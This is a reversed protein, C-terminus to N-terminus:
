PVDRHRSRAGDVEDNGGASERPSPHERVDPGSHEIWFLGDRRAPRGQDAICLTPKATRKPVRGSNSKPYQFNEPSTWQYVCIRRLGPFQYYVSALGRDAKSSRRFEQWEKSTQNVCLASYRAHPDDFFVNLWASYVDLYFNWVKGV